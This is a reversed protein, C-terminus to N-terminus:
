KNVKGVGLEQDLVEILEKLVCWEEQTTAGILVERKEEDIKRLIM